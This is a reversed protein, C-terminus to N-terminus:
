GFGSQLPGVRARFSDCRRVSHPCMCFLEACRKMGMCMCRKTQVWRARGTCEGLLGQQHRRKAAAQQQLMRCSRGTHEWRNRWKEACGERGCRMGEHSLKGGCAIPWHVSVVVVRARDSGPFRWRARSGTNQSHLVRALGKGGRVVCGPAAREAQRDAAADCVWRPTHKGQGGPAGGGVMMWIGEAWPPAGAWEM